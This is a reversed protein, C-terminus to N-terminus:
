RGACRCPPRPKNKLILLSGVAVLEFLTRHADSNWIGEGVRQRIHRGHRGGNGATAASMKSSARRLENPVQIDMFNAVCEGRSTEAGGHQPDFGDFRASSISSSAEADASSDRMEVVMARWSGVIFAQQFDAGAARRRRETFARNGDGFATRKAMMSSTAPRTQSRMMSLSSM